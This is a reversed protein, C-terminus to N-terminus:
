QTMPVIDKIYIREMNSNYKAFVEMSKKDFVWFEVKNLFLKVKEQQTFIDGSEHIELTETVPEAIMGVIAMSMREKIDRAVERSVPFVLVMSDKGEFCGDFVVEYHVNIRHERGLPTKVKYISRDVEFAAPFDPSLIGLHRGTFEGREGTHNDSIPVEIIFREFDADYYYRPLESPIFFHMDDRTPYRSELTMALHRLRAQYEETTEFEAKRERSVVARRSTVEIIDHGFFNGPLMTDEYKLVPKAHEVIQSSSMEADCAVLFTFVTLVVLVFAAKM